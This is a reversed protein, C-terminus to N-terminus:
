HKRVLEIELLHPYYEEFEIYTVYIRKGDAEALEPHEKAAYILVPYPSKVEPPRVQFLHVPSSWPGWPNPSTRAVIAGSVDQSHVTLYCELYKNYAVSLENPPGTFVVQATRIDDSWRGTAADSLYEYCEFNEIETAPVRAVYVNQQGTGSDRLVGYFYLFRDGPVVLVVAGFQPMTHDWVITSGRYEIRRFDWTDTDGVSLGSGYVEFAVPFPSDDAPILKIKQFYLYLKDALEIGHFCWIRDTLHNEGPLLNVLQKLKGDQGRIHRFNVIGARGTRDEVLAGTNHVISDIKNWGETLAQPRISKGDMYWLSTGTSREGVLTDGFFWLTRDRLRISYAGDQGVMRDPNVTFQPGLDRIEGVTFPQKM